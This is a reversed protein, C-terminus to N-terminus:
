NELQSVVWPVMIFALVAAVIFEKTDSFAELMSLTPDGALYILFVIALLKNMVMELLDALVTSLPIPLL